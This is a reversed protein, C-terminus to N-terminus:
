RRPDASTTETLSEHREYARDVILRPAALRQQVSPSDSEALWQVILEAAVEGMGAASWQATALPTSPDPVRWPPSCACGLAVQEGLDLHAAELALAVAQVDCASACFFGIPGDGAMRRFEDSLTSTDDEARLRLNRAGDNQLTHGATAMAYGELRQEMGPTPQGVICAVSGRSWRVLWDTVVFSGLREDVGVFGAVSERPQQGVRFVPIAARSFTRLHEADSDHWDGSLVAARPRMHLIREVQAALVEESTMGIREDTSCVILHLGGDALRHELGGVMEPFYPGGEAYPALVAVLNNDTEDTSALRGAVRHGIGPRSRVLGLRALDALARRLTGRSVEFRHCLDAESPLFTGRPYFGAVIDRRLRDAVREYLLDRGAKERSEDEAM